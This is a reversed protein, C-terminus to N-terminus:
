VAGLVSLCVCVCVCVCLCIHGSRLSGQDKVEEIYLESSVGGGLGERLLGGVCM